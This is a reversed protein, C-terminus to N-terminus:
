GFDTTTSSLQYTGAHLELTVNSPAAARMKSVVHATPTAGISVVLPHSSPVLTAAELVAEVESGLVEEASEATKCGYSHGAHCYFGSLSSAKSSLM